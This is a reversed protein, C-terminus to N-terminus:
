SFKSRQDTVSEHRINRLRQGDAEICIHLLLVASGPLQLSYLPKTCPSQHRQM